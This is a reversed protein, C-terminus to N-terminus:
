ATAQLRKKSVRDLFDDLRKHAKMMELRAASLQSSADHIHKAGVLDTGTYHGIVEIFAQAAANTRATAEVIGNILTTRMEKETQESTIPPKPKRERM